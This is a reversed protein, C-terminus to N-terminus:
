QSAAVRVGQYSSELKKRCFRLNNSKQIESASANEAMVGAHRQATQASQGAVVAALVEVSQIPTHIGM